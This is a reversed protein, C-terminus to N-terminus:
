REFSWSVGTKAIRKVELGLDNLYEYVIQSTRFEKYGLEPHMHFDRRLKILEDNLLEIEEKIM